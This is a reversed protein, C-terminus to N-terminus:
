GTNVEQEPLAERFAVADWALEHGVSGALLKRSPGPRPHLSFQVRRHSREPRGERAPKM